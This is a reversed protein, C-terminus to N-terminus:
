QLKSALQQADSLQERLERLAGDAWARVGENEMKRVSDQFLEIEQSLSQAAYRAFAHDFGAGAQLDLAHLRTRADQSMDKPLQLHNDAAVKHLQAQLKETRAQWASAFRKLEPSRARTRALDTLQHDHIFLGVASRMFVRDGDSARSHTTAKDIDKHPSPGPQAHAAGGAISACVLAISLTRRTIARSPCHTPATRKKM